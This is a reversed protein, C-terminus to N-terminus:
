EGKTVYNLLKGEVYIVKVIEKGKLWKQIKERQEAMERVEQESLGAEVEM